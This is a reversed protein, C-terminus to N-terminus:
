QHRQVQVVTVARSYWGTLGQRVLVGAVVAQRMPTPLISDMVAVIERGAQVLPERQEDPKIVGVAM